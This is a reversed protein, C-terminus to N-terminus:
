RVCTQQRHGNDSGRWESDVEIDSQCIGGTREEIFPVEAIACFREQRGFGVHEVNVLIRPRVNALEFQDSRM